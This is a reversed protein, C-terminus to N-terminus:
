TSLGWASVRAVPEGVCVGGGHRVGYRTAPNSLRSSQRGTESNWVCTSTAVFGWCNTCSVGPCAAAQSQFTSNSVVQMSVLVDRKNRSQTRKLRIIRLKGEILLVIEVAGALEEIQGGVREFLMRELSVSQRALGRLGGASKLPYEILEDVCAGHFENAHELWGNAFLSALPLLSTLM